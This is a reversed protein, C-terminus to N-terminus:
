GLEDSFYSRSFNFDRKREETITFTAIAIDIEGNELMAARTNASGVIIFKVANEDGLIAKAVMRALDIEMGELENIDLNLFGFRPVDSKVGVRLEGRNLIAKIEDGGSCAALSCSLLFVSIYIAIKRTM